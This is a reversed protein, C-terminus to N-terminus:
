YYIVRIGILSDGMVSPVDELPEFVLHTSCSEVVKGLGSCTFGLELPQRILWREHINKNTENEATLPLRKIISFTTNRPVM